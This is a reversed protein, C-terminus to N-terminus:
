GNMSKHNRFQHQYCYRTRRSYAQFDKLGIFNLSDTWDLMPAVSFRNKTFYLTEINKQPMFLSQIQKDTRM